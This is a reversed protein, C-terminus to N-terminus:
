PSPPSSPPPKPAGTQPKLRKYGSRAMAIGAITASGGISATLILFPWGESGLSLGFWLTCAGCLAAVLTGTTLLVYAFFREASM